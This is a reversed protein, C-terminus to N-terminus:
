QWEQASKTSVSKGEPSRVFRSHILAYLESADQNLQLFEEDQLEAQSPAQTALLLKLCLKTRKPSMQCEEELRMLNFKDRIFAPEVGM